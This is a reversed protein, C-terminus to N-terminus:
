GVNLDVFSPRHFWRVLDIRGDIGFEPPHVEVISLDFNGPRCRRVPLFPMGWRSALGELRPDALFFQIACEKQPGLIPDLADVLNSPLPAYRWIWVRVVLDTLVDPPVLLVPFMAFEEFVSSNPDIGSSL